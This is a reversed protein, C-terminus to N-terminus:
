GAFAAVTLPFEVQLRCGKNRATELTLRGEHLLARTEINKLGVGHPHESADFGLGNDSVLLIISNRQNRLSVVVKKAAAHKVINSWQEQVIRYITLKLKPPISDEDFLAVDLEVEFHETSPSQLLHTLAEVLTEGSLSPPILSHSLKRVEQMAQSVINGAMSLFQARQAEDSTALDMYLRASTLIQNVNDHLEAGIIRRENEQAAIVAETVDRHRRDNSRKLEEALMLYSSIDNAVLLVAQVQGANLVPEASLLTHMDSGNVRFTVSRNGVSAGAFAPAIINHHFVEYLEKSEFLSRLPVISDMSRTGLRTQSFSNLVRVQLDPRVLLVLNPVQQLVKDLSLSEVPDFLRYRRVATIVAISFFTILGSTLPLENRGLVMPFVVELTIGGVVPVLAGGAVLMMQMRREGRPQRLANVLLILAMVVMTASVFWNAFVEIGHSEPTVVWGWQPDRILRSEDIFSIYLRHLVFFPGYTLALFLPSRVLRSGTYRCAFHFGLPALSMWSVSFVKDVLIAAARTELGIYLGDSIQWFMLAVVAFGFIDTTRHRPLYFFVYVAIGLNIGAPLFTLLAQAASFQFLLTSLM